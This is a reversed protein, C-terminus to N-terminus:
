PPIFLLFLLESVLNMRQIMKKHTYLIYPITFTNTFPSSSSVRLSQSTIEVRSKSGMNQSQLENAYPLPIPRPSPSGFAEEAIGDRASDFHV